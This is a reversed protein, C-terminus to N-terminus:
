LIQGRLVGRPRIQRISYPTGPSTPTIRIKILNGYVRFPLNKTVIAENGVGALSVTQTGAVVSTDGDVFIEFKLSTSDNADAVVELELLNKYRNPDGLDTWHSEWLSDIETGADDNAQRFESVLGVYDGLLVTPTDALFKRDDWTVEYSDWPDVLDQWLLTSERKWAGIVNIAKSFEWDFWDGRAFDFVVAKTKTSAGNPVYLLIYLNLEEIAWGVSKDRHTPDIENTLTDKIKDGIALTKQGNYAYINDAGLFVLSESITAVSKPATTGRGNIVRRTSWVLPGGLFAVDFLANDTFVVLKDRSLLEMGRVRDGAPADLIIADTLDWSNPNGIASPLITLPVRNGTDTYDGMWLRRQFVRYHQPKTVNSPMTQASTSGAAGDWQQPADVRNTSCLIDNLVEVSWLDDQDASGSSYLEVWLGTTSNYRFISTPTYLMLFSSTSKLWFQELGTIAEVSATTFDTSVAASIFPSFGDRRRLAGHPPFTHVNLNKENEGVETQEPLVATNRGRFNIIPFDQWATAM